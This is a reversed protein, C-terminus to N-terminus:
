MKLNQSASLEYIILFVLSCSEIGTELCFRIGKRIPTELSIKLEVDIM